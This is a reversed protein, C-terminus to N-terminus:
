YINQQWSTHKCLKSSHSLHFFLASTFRRRDANWINLLLVWQSMVCNYIHHFHFINNGLERIHRNSLFDFSQLYFYSKWPDWSLEMLKNFLLIHYSLYFLYNQPFPTRLYFIFKRSKWHGCFLYKKTHTNMNTLLIVRMGQFFGINRCYYFNCKELIQNFFFSQYLFHYREIVINTFFRLLLLFFVFVTM